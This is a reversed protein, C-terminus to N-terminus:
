RGEEWLKPQEDYASVGIAACLDEVWGKIRTHTPHKPAKIIDDVRYIGNLVTAHNRGFDKGVRVSSHGVRRHLVWWLAFRAECTYPVGRFRSFIDRLPVGIKDRMHALLMPTPDFVLTGNIFCKDVVVGPFLSPQSELSINEMKM